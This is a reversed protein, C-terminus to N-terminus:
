RVEDSNQSESLSNDRSEQKKKEDRICELIKRCLTIM